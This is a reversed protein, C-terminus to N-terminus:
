NLQLRTYGQNQKRPFLKPNLSNSCLLRPEKGKTIRESIECSWDDKTSLLVRLYQFEEVKEFAISDLDDKYSEGDLLEMIKTKKM